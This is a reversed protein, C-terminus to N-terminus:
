SASEADQDDAGLFVTLADLLEVALQDPVADGDLQDFLRAHLETALKRTLTM